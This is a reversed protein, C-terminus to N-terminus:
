RRGYIMGGCLTTLGFIVSDPQVTVKKKSM